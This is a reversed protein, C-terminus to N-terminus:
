AEIFLLAASARPLRVQLQRGAAIRAETRPRWDASGQAVEAGAFTVGSPADLAPGQLRWVRAGRGAGGLDIAIDLDAAADKNILAIRMGGDQARAAYAVADAGGTELSCAVMTTGAFRQGLMMGYFLPRAEFGEGRSGAFPSYFAGRKARERDADTRAGPMRDANSAAIQKGPGGHFNIGKCGRAALGLMLDAGWLASALVDSVGPKGGRYCSNTEAMRFPLGAARVAPFIVDLRQQLRPDPKLLNAIDAAPSEPPGEAYYHGSVAVVREGLRRPAAEAFRAVWDASGSVDPGAFCADPARRSVAEAIAAWEAMYDDFGWQPPRLQNSKNHYLDPENGIQFYRLRPGLARAVYAAEEADREPTGTGLNLGWICTWGCADLFGRLNDVAEPTIAHFHQPMWNDARGVGPPPRITPEAADARAKWWCFESSNGGVRLVGDPTLRRHLAILSANDPHYFSPDAFQVTEVSFGTYDRPVANLTQEAHVTLRAASAASAGTTGAACLAGAVLARRNLGTM